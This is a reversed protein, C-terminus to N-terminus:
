AKRKKLLALAGLGLLALTAPEPVAEQTMNFNFGGTSPINIDYQLTVTQGNLVPAPAIFKITQADPYVITQFKTSGGSGNVFTAVGTLYLNYGTWTFGSTNQITQSVTFIPDADTLGSTAIQDYGLSKGAMKLKWSVGASIDGTTVGDVTSGVVNNSADYALLAWGHTQGDPADPFALNLSLLGATAVSTFTCLVLAVLCFLVKNM